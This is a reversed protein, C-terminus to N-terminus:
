LIGPEDVPQENTRGATGGDMQENRGGNILQPLRRWKALYQAAPAESGRRSDDDASSEVAGLDARSTKRSLQRSPPLNAYDYPNSWLIPNDEDENDSRRNSLDSAASARRSGGDTPDGPAKSDRRSNNGSAGVLLRSGDDGFNNRWGDEEEYDSRRAEEAAADGAEPLELNQKVVLRVYSPRRNPQMGLSSSARREPADLPDVELSVRRGDPSPASATSSGSTDAGLQTAAPSDPTAPPAKAPPAKAPPAKTPPASAPAPEAYVASPSSSGCGM